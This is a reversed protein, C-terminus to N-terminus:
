GVCKLSCESTGWLPQTEIGSPVDSAPRQLRYLFPTDVLIWGCSHAARSLMLCRGLFSYRRTSVASSNWLSWHTRPPAITRPSQARGGQTGERQTASSYLHINTRAALFSVTFKNKGKRCLWKIARTMLGMMVPDLLNECNVIGSNEISLVM